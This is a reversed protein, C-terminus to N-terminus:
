SAEKPQQLDNSKISSMSTAESVSPYPTLTNNHVRKGDHYYSPSSSETNVSHDLSSQAASDMNTTPDVDDDQLIFSRHMAENAATDTNFALNSQSERPFSSPKPQSEVSVNIPRVTANEYLVDTEHSLHFGKLHPYSSTRSEHSAPKEDNVRKYGGETADSSSPSSSSSATHHQPEPVAGLPNIPLKHTLPTASLQDRERQMKAENYKIGRMVYEQNVFSKTSLNSAADAEPKYTSSAARPFVPEGNVFNVHVNSSSSNVGSSSHNITSFKFAPMSPPYTFGRDTYSNGFADEHSHDSPFHPDHLDAFSETMPLMQSDGMEYDQEDDSDPDKNATDGKRSATAKEHFGTVNPADDNRHLYYKSFDGYYESSNHDDNYEDTLHSYSSSRDFDDNDLDYDYSSFVPFGTPLGTRPQFPNEGRLKPLSKLSSASVISEPKREDTTETYAGPIYSIPDREVRDEPDPAIMPTTSFM